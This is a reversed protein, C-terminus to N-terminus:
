CNGPVPRPQLPGQTWARPWRKATQRILTNEGTVDHHVRGEAMQEAKTTKTPFAGQHWAWCLDRECPSTHTGSVARHAGESSSVVMHRSGATDWQELGCVPSELGGARRGHGTRRPWSWRIMHPRSECPSALGSSSHNRCQQQQQIKTMNHKHM